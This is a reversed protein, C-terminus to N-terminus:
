ETDCSRHRLRADVRLREAGRRLSRSSEVGARLEVTGSWHRSMSACSRSRRLCPGTESRASVDSGAGAGADRCAHRSRTVSAGRPSFRPALAHRRLTVGIRLTMARGSLDHAQWTGSRHLVDGALGLRLDDTFPVAGRRLVRLASGSTRSTPTETIADKTVGHREDYADQHRDLGEIPISTTEM